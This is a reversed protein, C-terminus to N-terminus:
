ASKEPAELKNVGKNSKWDMFIGGALLLFVLISGFGAVKEGKAYWEPEFKFVIEHKGAPVRMGRLLYNTRFYKAPQNDVYVNWGKDYYIESFVALQETTANSAYHLENAKYSTLAISATSDYKPSFGNLDAEYRKDVLATTRPNFKGLALIEENADAALKVQSVFWANGLAAGNKLVYEKSKGDQDQYPVVLYRGNLMNVVNLKSLEIRLMSDNGLIPAFSRVKNVERELQFDYVEQVRKLKVASYGGISKHYYSTRADNWIDAATNLVRYNIGKDELIQKDSATMAPPPLDGKRGVKVYDSQGKEDDDSLYRNSVGWMDFIVLLTLAGGLAMAPMKVNAFVFLLIGAGCIFLFSRGGDSSVINERTETLIDVFEQAQAGKLGGQSLMAMQQATQKENMPDVFMTPSLWVFLALGGTLAFSIYFYKIKSKFAEKNNIIEQVALIALLPITLEAIVLIMAVARFKNFGPLHDFFLRVWTEAHYGWALSISLLTAGLLWWKISDKVIFLGLIFLFCFIAGVYVPGSTFPQEGFYARGYQAVLGKLKPGGAGPEVAEFDSEAYAGVASSAGGNFDPIMLTFSEGVGYSWQTAYDFPLAEDSKEKKKSDPTITLESAGRTTSKVYENTLFLSTFSPLVAIVVAVLLLGAAKGFEKLKHEYQMRVYEGIGIIAVLILLYYTIQLHNAGIELGLAVATIAAGLFPRGRFSLLMGLLVPAMYAIAYAKSNHGAQLIIILYSSLGFGVAGAVALWPDVKFVQLLFYFGIMCLLVATAPHPMLKMFANQVYTLGNAPYKASIQYAPMGGFMSNTWLPEKNNNASRFDAIEKSMGKHQEIDHQRIKKGDFVLPSFFVATIAFFLVIAGLHLLYRKNTM